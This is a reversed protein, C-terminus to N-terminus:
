KKLFIFQGGEDGTNKIPDLRPTQDSNNIVPIKINNYVQSIDLYKNENTELTKLLYYAFVSHGDKGGDMVPEDGGSTLAQRSNKIYANAYYKDSTEFPAAISNGRFIDGSFCADSILLTHKTKMAGLFGQIETSSILESVAGTQADIPVWFAKNLNKKKEGHGSYYIILNDNSKLSDALKEFVKFLNARTAKENYITYTKNIKYKGKLTSEFAKADNVANNLQKYIGKYNDIGIILACYNGPNIPKNTKSINLDKLPDTNGRTLNKDDNTTEGKIEENEETETKEENSTQNNNKSLIVKSFILNYDWDKNGLETMRKSIEKNLSLVNDFCNASPDIEALIKGANVAGEQNQSANWASRAEMLKIGCQQDIYYKFMPEAATLCSDYCPKCISPVSLLQEIGAGFNMALASAQASKIINTCNSNYYDIIKLKGVVLFEKMKIDDIDIKKFADLYAKNENVGVGIVNIVYYYFERNNKGASIFFSIDLHYQQMMPPGAITQKESVNVKAQLFFKADHEDDAVGNKTVFQHLRNQLYDAAIDPIEEVSKPIFVGLSIGLSDNDVENLSSQCFSSTGVVLFIFVLVSQLNKVFRKSFTKIYNITRL